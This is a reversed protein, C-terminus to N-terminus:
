QDVLLQQGGGDGLAQEGGLARRRGLLRGRGGLARLRLRGAALPGRDAAHRRQQVLLQRRKTRVQRRQARAQRRQARVQRWGDGGARQVGQSAIRAQNVGDLRCNREGGQPQRLSSKELREDPLQPGAAPVRLQFHQQNAASQRRRGQQNEDADGDPDQILGVRVGQEFWGVREVLFARQGVRDLPVTVEQVMKGPLRGGRARPDAAAQGLQPQGGGARRALGCGQLRGFGDQRRDARFRCVVGFRAGHKGGQKRFDGLPQGPLGPLPESGTRDGLGLLHQRQGLLIQGDRVLRPLLEAADLGGQCQRPVLDGAVVLQVLRNGRDPQGRRRFVEVARISDAGGQEASIGLQGPVGVQGFGEEADGGGLLRGDGPDVPRLRRRCQWRGGSREGGGDDGLAREVRVGRVGLMLDDKGGRGARDVSEIGGAALHQPPFEHAPIGPLRVAAAQGTRHRRCRAAVHDQGGVPVAFDLPDLRGRASDAPSMGDFLIEGGIRHGGVAREQQGREAPPQQHDIRGAALRGAEHLQRLREADGRGDVRPAFQDELQGVLLVQEHQGHRLAAAPLHKGKSVLGAGDGRWRHEPAIIQQDRDVLAGAVRGELDELDFRGSILRRRWQQSQRLRDRHFPVHVRGRRGAVVAHQQGGVGALDM